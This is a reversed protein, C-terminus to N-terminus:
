SPLTATGAPAFGTDEDTIETGQSTQGVILGFYATEEIVSQFLYMSLCFIGAFFLLFPVVMAFGRGAPSETRERSEM